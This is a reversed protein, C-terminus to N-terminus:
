EHKDGKTIWKSPEVVIYIVRSDHYNGNSDIVPAFVIKAIKESSREVTIRKSPTDPYQRSQSPKLSQIKPSHIHDGLIATMEGETLELEENLLYATSDNPSSSPSSTNVVIELNHDAAFEKNKNTASPLLDNATESVTELSMLKEDTLEVSESIPSFSIASATESNDVHSKSTETFESIAVPTVGLEDDAILREDITAIDECNGDVRNCSWSGAVNEYSVACSSMALCSTLIFTRFLM